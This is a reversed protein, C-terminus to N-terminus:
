ELNMLSEVVKLQSFLLSLDVPMDQVVEVVVKVQDVLDVMQDMVVLVVM